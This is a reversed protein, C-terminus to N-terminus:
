LKKMVCETHSGWDGVADVIFSRTGDSVRDGELIAQPPICYMIWLTKRSNGTKDEVTLNRVKLSLQIEANMDEIITESDECYNGSDDFDDLPRSVTVTCAYDIDNEDFLSM